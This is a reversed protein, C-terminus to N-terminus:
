RAHVKDVGWDNGAGHCTACAEGAHHAPFTTTNLYAHAAADDNDHCGLCAATGPGQPTFYDRPTMVPTPARRRAPPQVGSRRTASRATAATARSLPSRQLQDATGFGYITFEQTLEEGTHIRHIMRQFSISERNGAASSPTDPGARDPQPLDRVRRHRQRSGGHLALRDHCENCLAIDVITRRAM